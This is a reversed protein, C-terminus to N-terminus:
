WWEEASKTVVTLEYPEGVDLGNVCTFTLKCRYERDNVVIHMYYIYSSDEKNRGFSVFTKNGHWLFMKSRPNLLVDVLQQNLVGSTKCQETEIGAQNASKFHSTQVDYPADLKGLTENFGVRIYSGEKQLYVLPAADWDDYEWDCVDFNLKEINETVGTSTITKLQLPIYKSDLKKVEEMVAKVTITHTGDLYSIGDQTLWVYEGNLETQLVLYGEDDFVIGSCEEGDITIFVEAGEQLNLPTDFGCWGDVIEVTYNDLLYVEQPETSWFPRNKIYDAQASDNQAWDAQAQSGGGSPIEVSVASSGDYVANVAGTFTIAKKDPLHNEPIKNYERLCIKVTYGELNAFIINTESNSFLFTASSNIGFTVSAFIDNGSECIETEYPVGNIYVLIPTGNVRYQADIAGVTCIGAASKVVTQEPLIVAGVNTPIWYMDLYKNDLRHVANIHISITLNTVGDNSYVPPLSGQMEAILFPESTPTATDDAIAWNGLAIFRESDVVREFATCIYNVGNWNVIYEQGVVLNINDPLFFCGYDEDYTLVTEALLQIPKMYHTRNLIHGSEGEAAKWDPDAGGSGGSGGASVGTDEEGIFWNGNDGIHPTIGDAGAEGTGGREGPDGKDGKLDASSTGSASTITLTTGSWSHTTSVGNSGAAGTSGKSGNKITVTKGDSFTVVNSGGDATSESASKVTVSTGDEGDFEGSAKAQALADDIASQLEEESMGGGSGGGLKNPNIPTTVTIGYIPKNVGDTEAITVPVTYNNEPKQGFAYVTVVGNDNKTTFTLDKEYFVAIQDVTPTLNIQSNETIGSIHVVQSYPSSGGSWASAPLTVSVVPTSSVVTFTQGNITLTKMLGM